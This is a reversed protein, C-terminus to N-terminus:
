YSDSSLIEGGQITALAMWNKMNISQKIFRISADGMLANLGGPHLSGFGRKCLNSGDLGPAAACQDFSPILSRTQDVSTGLSYTNYAYSWFTRRTNHTRTHYETVVATNSSGDTISSMSECNLGKNGNTSSSPAISHLVGRWGLNKGNYTQAGSDDWYIYGISAPLGDDAGGIARYSGPAYQLGASNGPGSEPIDTRDTNLDSPCIYAALKATRLTANEVVGKSTGLYVDNPLLLNYSNFLPVQEMQPLLCIAWNLLNPSSCCPGVEIGGFPFTGNITHYNHLAIGIQKLNNVCQARRAAERAAQVAPLLLGILVAIIAIVVLLEILTFGRRSVRM